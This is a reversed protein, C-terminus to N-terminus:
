TAYKKTTKPNKSWSEVASVTISYKGYRNTKYFLKMSNGQTSSSTQYNLQPKM